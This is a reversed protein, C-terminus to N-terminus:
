QFALRLHSGHGLDQGIKSGARNGAAAIRWGREIVLRAVRQGIRGPGYLVIGKPEM